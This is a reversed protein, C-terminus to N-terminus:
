VTLYYQVGHLSTTATSSFYCYYIPSYSIYVLEYMSYVHRCKITDVNNILTTQISLTHM